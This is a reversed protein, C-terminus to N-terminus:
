FELEIKKAIKRNNQWDEDWKEVEKWFYKSHNKHLIHCLEHIIVYDFLNPPLTIIQWNFNLNNKHSCSGLCGKQNKIRINGFHVEMKQAYYEVKERIIRAALPRIKKDILKRATTENESKARIEKKEKDIVVYDIKKSKIEQIRGPPLKLRRFFEVIKEPPLDLSRLAAYALLLNLLNFRGEFVPRHEQEFILKKQFEGMVLWEKLCFLGDETLKGEILHNVETPSIKRQYKGNQEPQELLVGWKSRAPYKLFHRVSPDGLNLVHNKACQKFLKEKEQRYEKFGGHREIHEPSLNNFVVTDYDLFKQRHQLIGESSTEVVGYLAQNQLARRLLRPLFFRGPMGMKTLNREKDGGTSLFVTSSLASRLNNKELIQWILYAVTTKQTGPTRPSICKV